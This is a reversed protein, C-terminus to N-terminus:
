EVRLGWAVELEEPVNWSTTPADYAEKTAQLVESTITLVYTADTYGPKSLKSISRMYTADAQPTGKDYVVWQTDPEDGFDKAESGPKDDATTYYNITEYSGMDTDGALTISTLLPATSTKATLKTNYYWYGDNENHTWGSEALKKYVVSGDGSVEGDTLGATGRAQDGNDVTATLFDAANSGKTITPVDSGAAFTWIESMKVRVFLDYNGTNDVYAVKAVEEGPLWNAKPTFEEVLESGYQDATTSLQNSIEHTATYFAWAGVVLALAAL